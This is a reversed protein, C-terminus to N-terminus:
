RIDLWRLIAAQSQPLYALEHGTDPVLQLTGRRAADKLRRAHDPPILRDATGHLLLTPAAVRPLKAANEYRDRLLWRVPFMWMQAAAVDALSTFGSVIVLAAVPYRMALETAIGSGLSNGMLVIRGPPIGKGELWSLAAEGDRYLGVESPSGPNGGYGRYESLMLGYGAGGLMRTAAMAGALDDGNGHFFVIVLKQGRPARYLARLNLGDDTGIRADAFYAPVIQDTAPPAPYILRRQASFLLATAVLYLGGLFALGGLVLKGM